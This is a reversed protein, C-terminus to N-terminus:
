HQSSSSRARSHSLTVLLLSCAREVRNKAPDGTHSALREQCSLEDRGNPRLSRLFENFEDSTLSSRLQRAEEKLVTLQDVRLRWLLSLLVGGRQHQNSVEDMLVLDFSPSVESEGCGVGLM